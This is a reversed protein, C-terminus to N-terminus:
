AIENLAQLVKEKSVCVVPGKVATGEVYHWDNEENMIRGCKVEKRRVSVCSEM